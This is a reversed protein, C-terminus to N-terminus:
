WSFLTEWSGSRAAISIECKWGGSGHSILTQQKLWGTQPLKYCGSSVLTSTLNFIGWMEVEEEHFMWSLRKQILGLENVKKSM